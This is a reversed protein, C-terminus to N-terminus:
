DSNHCSRVTESDGFSKLAVACRKKFELPLSGIISDMIKERSYKASLHMFIINKNCLMHSHTIVDELHVHGRDYAKSSDGDLYTLEMVLIEAKFLFDLEIHQLVTPATIRALYNNFDEPISLLGGLTSDGTYM